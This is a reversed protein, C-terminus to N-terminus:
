DKNLARYQVPDKSANSPYVAQNKRPNNRGSAVLAFIIALIAAATLFIIIIMVEEV